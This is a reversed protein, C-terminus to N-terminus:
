PRKLPLEHLVTRGSLDTTLSATEMYENTLEIEVHPPVDDAGHVVSAFYTSAYSDTVDVVTEADGDVDLRQGAEDLNAVLRGLDLDRLDVLDPDPQGLSGGKHPSFGDESYTYLEFRGGGDDVPVRVWAWTDHLEVSVVETSGFEEEIDEVMDELCEVTLLDLKDSDDDARDVVFGIGIVVALSGVGAAVWRGTRRDASSRSPARGAAVPVHDLELLAAAQHDDPVQLDHIQARLTQLEVARLALSVRREHEDEDIQGDAYAAGLV